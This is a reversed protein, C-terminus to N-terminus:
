DALQSLCVVRLSMRLGLVTQAKPDKATESMRGHYIKLVASHSLGRM